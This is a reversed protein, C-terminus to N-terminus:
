KDEEKKEGKAKAAEYKELAATIDPRDSLKVAKKQWEIAEDVKGLEFYVRALTDIIMGDSEKTIEVGEKAVKLALELDGYNKKDAAIGWAIQNLVMPDKGFKELVEQVYAAAAGKDGSQSLLDLKLLILQQSDPNKVLLPDVKAVLEGAYKGAAAKDEGQSLLNLKMMAINLNEPQQELLEDLVKIATETDGSQMAKVYRRQAAMMAAQLEKEKKRTAKAAVRDWNGEVVTALAEDMGMPHGIWEIYGDKGIIFATPIGGEGAGGMYANNTKREDDMALAYTVVQDWTKDKEQDKKLFATVEATEEDSIGIMRVKDGYKTQLEALHPMSTKCPGCWTAWFEVVYVQGDLFKETKDGKVWDTLKLEPAKSGIDLKPAGEEENDQKKEEDPAAEKAKIKTAPVSKPKEDKEQALSWGPATLAMAAVVAAWQFPRILKM